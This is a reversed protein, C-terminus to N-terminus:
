SCSASSRRVRCRTDSSPLTDELTLLEGRLARSAFGALRLYWDSPRHEGDADLTVLEVGVPVDARTAALKFCATGEDCEDFMATLLADASIGLAERLQTWYFRGGLRPIANIPAGGSQLNRWSFGPWLTPVYLMGARRCEEADLAFRNRYWAIADTENAFVSVMWPNIAAYARHVEAWALDSKCDELMRWGLPVGGMLTAKDRYFAQLERAQAATGPRDSAGLGWLMVVPKGAHNLYRANHVIPDIRWWDEEFTRVLEWEQADTIDYALMFTRGYRACAAAIHEYKRQSETVYGPNRLGNLFRGVTVGDIGYERMWRFHRDITKPHHSSFVQAVRGDPYRLDTDWLEDADFESVDPWLDIGLSAAGPKGRGWHDWDNRASGDGPCCFWGQYGM